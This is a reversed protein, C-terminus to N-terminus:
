YLLRWLIQRGVLGYGLYSFFDLNAGYIYAIVLPVGFWLSLCHGCNFPKRMKFHNGMSAALESIAALFFILGIQSGM